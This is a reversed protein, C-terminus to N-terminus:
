RSGYVIVGQKFEPWLITAANTANRPGGSAGPKLKSTWSGQHASLAKHFPDLKVLILNDLDNTGTDDLSFKHHVQYGEPVNGRRMGEIQDKTLGARQLQLINQPDNSITRLFKACVTSNFEARLDSFENRPRKYYEFLRTVVDPLFVTKRYLSTSFPKGAFGDPAGVPDTSAGTQGANDTALAASPLPPGGEAGPQAFMRGEGRAGDYVHKKIRGSRYSDELVQDVRDPDYAERSSTASAASQSSETANAIPGNALDTRPEVAVAGPSIESTSQERPVVSQSLDIPSQPESSRAARGAILGPLEVGYSFALNQLAQERTLPRGTGLPTLAATAGTVMPGRLLYEAAKSGPMIREAIAGSADGLPARLGATAGQVLGEGARQEIDYQPEDPRREILPLM